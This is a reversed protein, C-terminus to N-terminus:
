VVQIIIIMKGKCLSSVSISQKHQKIWGYSTPRQSPKTSTKIWPLQGRLLYLMAYAFSNLDDAKAPTLGDHARISAFNPTGVLIGRHLSNSQSHQETAVGFKQALGFDIIFLQAHEPDTVIM